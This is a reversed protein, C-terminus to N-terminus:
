GEEGNLAGIGMLGGRLGDMELEDGCSGLKSDDRTLERVGTLLVGEAGEAGGV